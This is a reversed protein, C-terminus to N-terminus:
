RLKLVKVFLKRIEEVWLISSAIIVILLWEVGSLATTKFISQMFPNYIIFMQLTVVLLTASLLFKNSFINSSFVSEKESRCNWANFWQLAALLTLVVTRAKDLDTDIYQRFVVLTSITMVSAMLFMRWLMLKDILYKKSKEFKSNLLGKEKPDMALSVDLFGDTVFNLWIIQAAALPLPFGFFIAGGIVFVEGLSTSFLYLIVKKITKYISRGEEVASVIGGFNDDLLIIDSAEKAVETGIKGMAVGLDAAVLSPADNVGDGTMAIIDGRKKFAEIIQLKHEPDVRSFVSVRDLKEALESSSLNDIESGTIVIDGEKFIGVEKALAEATIRHDGTIMIVKIGAKKAIEVSEIAEPRLTDKIALFGLFSLEKIKEPKLEDTFGDIHALAIVRLGESSISKLVNEIEEKKEKSFIFNKGKHWIRTSFELVVEPAGAVTLIKKGSFDRLVAHYKLRYDFPIELIKIAEQEITEKHFGLKKAFIIMSADTPDGSVKWQQDEESFMVRADASFISAQGLSILGQYNLPDVLKNELFIEGKPEYGLGTVNFIEGDVFVKRVILENKTLTGTKDVAIIRAQGLAEVAQLKKILVNQKSMRWVGNALVLTIVIPLGEPIISVALSVVVVLMEKIPKGTYLGFVFLFSCIFFVAGIIIWSLDRINKKLPIETDILAIQKAIKGIVTEIGTAVVLVKGNGAVVNTGKFVMNKQDAPPLQEKSLLDEIKSIPNSEGTMSSEDIKLGSSFIVRADAPVKEGEQLIIIDGVVVEKDPIIIEKNNRLVTTKTEVFRKLAILANKAKGEQFAGVIANFLLVMLIILSDIKEGLLFVALCAVLLIYILPSKFQRFFITIYSDFKGEPLKNFGYKELRDSAEKETLGYEFSGIEKLINSIEKTHWFNSKEQM